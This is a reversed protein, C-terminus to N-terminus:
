QHDLFNQIAYRANEVSYDTLRLAFKLVGMRNFWDFWYKELIARDRIDRLNVELLMIELNTFKEPIPLLGIQERNFREHWNKENRFKAVEMYTTLNGQHPRQYQISANFDLYGDTLIFLINRANPDILNLLQDRFFTWIDAGVFQKSDCAQEYINNLSLFLDHKAKEFRPKGGSALEQGDIWLNDANRFLLAQYDTPQPAIIIQFRDRAHVYLRQKVRREFWNFITRVIKLDREAQYPHLRPDIRNSLDLLVLVNVKQTLRDAYGAEGETLSISVQRWFAITLIAFAVTVLVILTKKTM